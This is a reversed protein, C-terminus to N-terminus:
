KPLKEADSILQQQNALTMLTQQCRDLAKVTAATNCMCSYLEACDKLSYVGAKLGKNIYDEVLSFSKVVEAINLYQPKQEAM